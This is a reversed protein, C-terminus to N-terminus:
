FYEKYIFLGCVLADEALAAINLNLQDQLAFRQKGKPIKYWARLFPTPNASNDASLGQTCYLLGRKNAYDNLNSMDGFNPTPTAAPKKELITVQSGPQNMGGSVIWMEVYVAKIVSGERVDQSDAGIDQVAVSKAIEVKSVTGQVITFIPVQVIHKVSNIPPRM